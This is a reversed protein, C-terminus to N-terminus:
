PNKWFFFRRVERLLDTDLLEDALFRLLAAHQRAGVRSVARVGLANM